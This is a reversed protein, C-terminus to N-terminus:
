PSAVAEINGPKDLVERVKAALSDPTFPKQLFAMEAQLVGHRVVADDMYGSLYLVKVNPRVVGLREALQRGSLVPMVVDTVLLHITGDYEEAVRLAKEGQSAELVKYGHMRLIHRTLSRLGLEDEALLITETGQYSPTAVPESAASPVNEEVAPLYVKFTSGHGPESYVSIHGESQKVIGFVTSLGLGTGKGAEKTTFFPEFLRAQTAADMGIGTDSVALLAHRGPRVGARRKTYTEDLVVNATQITLMGGQLMADRANVVLNILVQEIQGPDAKVRGLGPALVTHQDVDEGILRQLMKAMDTVIANLDLVKPELVQRRSFALLQRTLSAARRGAHGIERVMGRMGNDAPLQAQILESYGNIITLLNNFDHAVGGALQGFAEMKQARRFQDELVLRQTMDEALGLYGIFKGDDRLLPTNFWQCTIARGDKTLNENISHADMDGIQIRKRIEEAQTWFSRPVFDEYPPQKGLMEEKAYGFIREACPNWDIIRMEADFLVYALPMREIHLELRALLADRQGAVETSAEETARRLEKEAQKRETMDRLIKSFGTQKGAGDVTPTVIGLAWFWEGNKRVHWREDDAWGAESARRLEYEPVGKQLDEPTFILSFQRGLIEAESYGLMHEAELNWSTIIGDLNVTLIAHDKSNKVLSTFRTEIERRVEEARRRGTIDEVALLILETQNGAKSLRRANLLMVKRGIAGFDHEVEFDDFSANEPLIEELLTRLRPIDWQGNGLQYILRGETEAASTRFTKYFWRNATKVRLDDGLVLLAERVTTVVGQAFDLADKAAAESLKQSTRDRMIMAFGCLNKEEDWLPTITGTSWFRTGDKRVHWRDDKGRGSKVAKSMDRQQVGSEIDEPTFFLTAPQGIIESESYGLLRAAGPNWSQVRGSTDLVFIAYDHVNEVLLRFLEGEAAERSTQQQENM